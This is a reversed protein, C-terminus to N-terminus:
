KEGNRVFQQCARVVKTAWRLLGLDWVIGLTTAASFLAVSLWFVFRMPWFVDILAYWVSMASISFTALAGSCLFFCIDDTRTLDMYEVYKRSSVPRVLYDMFFHMNVYAHYVLYVLLTNSAATWFLGLGSTILNINAHNTAM